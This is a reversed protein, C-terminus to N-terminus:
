IGNFSLKLFGVEVGFFRAEGGVCFIEVGGGGVV